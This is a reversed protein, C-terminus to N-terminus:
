RELELVDDTLGYGAESEYAQAAQFASVENRIGDAARDLQKQLFLYPPADADEIRTDPPATMNHTKVYEPYNGCLTARLSDESVIYERVSDNIRSMEYLPIASLAGPYCIYGNKEMGYFVATESLSQYATDRSVALLTEKENSILLVGDTIEVVEADKSAGKTNGSQKMLRYIELGIEFCTNLNGWVSENQASM